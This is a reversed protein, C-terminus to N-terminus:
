TQPTGPVFGRATLQFHGSTNTSGFRNKRPCTLIMATDDLKAERSMELVIDVEHQITKPGAIDGSGTVHGILWFTTDNTKAYHVLRSVCEKLQTPSGSRGNVDTCVLTQISDVVVTQARVERAHTFITALNRESLVSLRPTLAGIRQARGELHERTEEGSAYLCRHGLGALLQLSLTSKGVGPPGVLLVVSAAVLGGGLMHDLPHLGTLARRFDTIIM